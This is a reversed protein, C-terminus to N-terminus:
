AREMHSWVYHDIVHEDAVQQTVAIAVYSCKPCTAKTVAVPSLKKKV